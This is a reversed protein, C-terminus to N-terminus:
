RRNRWSQPITKGENTITKGEKQYSCKFKGQGQADVDTLGLTNHAWEAIYHWLDPGPDNDRSSSSQRHAFVYHLNPLETTLQKILQRGANIQAPSPYHWRKSAEFAEHKRRQTQPNFLNKGHWWRYTENPFNGAFEIAVTRGNLCNSANVFNANPYLRAVAGNHMVIFHAGVNLSKQVDNSRADATQHIVVGDILNLPRDRRGVLRFQRDTDSPKWPNRQPDTVDTFSLFQGDNLFPEVSVSPNRLMPQIVQAKLRSKEVDTPQAKYVGTNIMETILRDTLRNEDTEEGRVFAGLVPMLASGNALVQAFELPLTQVFKLITQLPTAQVVPTAPSSFRQQRQVMKMSTVPRRRRETAALAQNMVSLGPGAPSLAAWWPIESEQQTAAAQSQCKSCNCTNVGTTTPMESAVFIEELLSKM